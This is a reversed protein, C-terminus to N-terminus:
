GYNAIWEIGQAHAAEIAISESPYTVRPIAIERPRRPWAQKCVVLTPLFKGGDLLRTGCLLEYDRHRFVKTTEM